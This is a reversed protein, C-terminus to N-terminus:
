LYAEACYQAFTELGEKKEPAGCFIGLVFDLRELQSLHHTIVLSDIGRRVKMVELYDTNSTYQSPAIVIAVHMNRRFSRKLVKLCEELCLMGTGKPADVHREWGHITVINGDCFLLGVNIDSKPILEIDDSFDEDELEDEFLKEQMITLMSNLIEVDTDGCEDAASILDFGSIDMDAPAAIYSGTAAALISGKDDVLQGLWTYSRFPGGEELSDRCSAFRLTRGKLGIEKHKVGAQDLARFEDFMGRESREVTYLSLLSQKILETKAFNRMYRYISPFAAESRPLNWLDRMSLGTEKCLLEAQFDNVSLIEKLFGLMVDQFLAEFVENDLIDEVKTTALDIPQSNANLLAAVVKPATNDNSHKRVMGEIYGRRYLWCSAFEPEWQSLFKESFDCSEGEQWLGITHIPWSEAFRGGVEQDVIIKLNMFNRLLDWSYFQSIVAVQSASLQADHFDKYGLSKAVIEQAQSLTPGDGIPWNRCVFRVLKTFRGSTFDLTSLAFKSDFM